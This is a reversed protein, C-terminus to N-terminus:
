KGRPAGAEREFEELAVFWEATPAEMVRLTRGGNAANAPCVEVCSGCGICRSQVTTVLRPDAAEYERNANTPCVPVCAACHICTSAPGADNESRMVIYRTVGPLAVPTRRLYMGGRLDLYDRRYRQSGRVAAVIATHREVDHPRAADSAVQLQEYLPLHPIGAQCAQECNGCRMCLDLLTSGTAPMAGGAHMSEGLHTLMQPLRIKSEHFIPCVSNCEGCNVCHIARASPSQAPAAGSAATPSALGPAIALLISAPEAVANAVAGGAAHAGIPAAPNMAASAAANAAGNSSVHGPAAEIPAAAAFRAGIAAPEGRGAGPGPLGALVLRALRVLWSTLPSGYLVRLVAIGPVFGRSLLGGLTGRLRLGTYVGRNLLEHPDFAARAERLRTAQERVSREFYGSQWRGLVYPRGDFRAMALEAIAPALTLDIAFSAKRHDTLYGAIVLANGDRLYYVESDLEVGVGRALREAADLFKPLREAPLVVEAALMGPGLRKTQQPRFREAAFRVSSEGLVAARAPCGPLAAAFAHAGELGHFDVFLYAGAEHGEGADLAAGFEDPGCIRKWPLGAEPARGAADKRWERSDEDRWVREVHHFHSATFLKLNSPRAFKDGAWSSIWSAAALADARNAFALLFAGIESLPEVAVTLHLVLGFAGESAAFDQLTIPRYGRAEFWQAAADGSLTARHPVSEGPVDLRGDAHFRVHEGAPLVVDVVLVADLARGHAFANLGTGGSVFWGGLTGGLNSPYVKLALGRAALRAHVDRLRAGPGVIVARDAADVDIMDLRSLDLTVGGDNPVSGGMATSGAGRLTVPIRGARAWRFVECVEALSAPQFIVDPLANTLTRTFLPTLYVNQDRDAESRLFADTVIRESLTGAAAEDAAGHRQTSLLAQELSAALGCSRLADDRLLIPVDGGLFRNLDPVAARSVGSRQEHNLALFEHLPRGLHREFASTVPADGM